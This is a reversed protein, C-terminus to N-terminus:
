EPPLSLSSRLEFGAQTFLKPSRIEFIGLVLFPSTAHSLPYARLELGPVSYHRKTHLMAPLLVLKVTYDRM